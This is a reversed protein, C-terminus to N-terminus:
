RIEAIQEKQRRGHHAGSITSPLNYTANKPVALSLNLNAGIPPTLLLDGLPPPEVGSRDSSPTPLAIFCPAIFRRSIVVCLRLSRQTPASIGWEWHIQTFATSLPTLSRNPTFATSLPSLRSAPPLVVFLPSLPPNVTLLEPNLARTPFGSSHTPIPFRDRHRAPFQMNGRKKAAFHLHGAPAFEPCRDRAPQV